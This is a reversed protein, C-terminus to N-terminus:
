PMKVLTHFYCFISRHMHTLISFKLLTSLNFYCDPDDSMEKYKLYNYYTMFDREYWPLSYYDEAYAPVCKDGFIKTSKEM